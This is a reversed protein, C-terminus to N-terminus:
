TDFMEKMTAMAKVLKEDKAYDYAVVISKGEMVGFLQVVHFATMRMDGNGGEYRPRCAALMCDGTRIDHRCEYLPGKTSMMLMPNNIMVVWDYSKAEGMGDAHPGVYELDFGYGPDARAAIAIEGKHENTFQAELEMRRDVKRNLDEVLEMIQSDVLELKAALVSSEKEFDM